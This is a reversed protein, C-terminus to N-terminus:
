DEHSHSGGPLRNQWRVLSELRVRMPRTPFRSGVARATLVPAGSADRTGAGEPELLIWEHVGGRSWLHLRLPVSAADPPGPLPELWTEGQLVFLDSADGDLTTDGPDRWSLGATDDPSGAELRSEAGAAVEAVGWGTARKAYLRARGPAAVLLYDLEATSGRILKRTELAALGGTLLDYLDAPARGPPRGAGQLIMTLPDIRAGIRVTDARGGRFVTWTARPPNLGHGGVRASDDIFNSFSLRWFGAVTRELSLPDAERDRPSLFVWKEASTRAARLREAGVAIWVSDVARSMPPLLERERWAFLDPVFFRAVIFRPIIAVGRLGSWWAYADGSAPAGGGIRIERSVGAAERLTMTVAAPDLGYRGLSDTELLRRVEIQEMARLMERVMRTGALDRLPERIWWRDGELALTWRGTPRTFDIAVVSAGEGRTLMSPVTSIGGADRGPRTRVMVVLLVLAVLLLSWQAVRQAGTHGRSPATM